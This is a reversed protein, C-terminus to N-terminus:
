RGPNAACWDSRPEQESHHVRGAGTREVCHQVGAGVGTATASRSSFINHSAVASWGIEEEYDNICHERFQRHRSPGFSWRRTREDVAIYNRSPLSPRLNWWRLLNNNILPPSAQRSNRPADATKFFTCARSFRVAESESDFVKLPCPM